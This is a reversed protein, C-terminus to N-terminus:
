VLQTHINNGPSGQRTCSRMRGIFLGGFGLLLITVPVPSKEVYKLCCFPSKSIILASINGSFSSNFRSLLSSRCALSNSFFQVSEKIFHNESGSPTDTSNAVLQRGQASEILCLGKHGRSDEAEEGFTLIGTGSWTFGIGVPAWLNNIQLRLIMLATKILSDLM